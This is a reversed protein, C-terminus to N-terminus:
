PYYPHSIWILEALGYLPYRVYAWQEFYRLLVMLENEKIGGVFFSEEPIWDSTAPVGKGKLLPYNKLKNELDINRQQNEELSLLRSGPNWATIFYGVRLSNQVLWRDVEENREGIIMFTDLWDIYYRTELYADELSKNKGEM